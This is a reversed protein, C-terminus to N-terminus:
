DSTMGGETTAGTYATVQRMRKAMHHCVAEAVDPDLNTSGQYKARWRPLSTPPSSTSSVEGQRQCEETPGMCRSLDTMAHMLADLKQSLDDQITVAVEEDNIQYQGQM